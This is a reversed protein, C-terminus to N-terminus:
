IHEAIHKKVVCQWKTKNYMNAIAFINSPQFTLTNNNNQQTWRVAM